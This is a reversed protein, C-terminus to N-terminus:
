ERYKDKWLEKREKSSFKGIGKLLGFGSKKVKEVSIKIIEGETISESEVIEKPLTVILSGGVKRTTTLSEAMKYLNIM